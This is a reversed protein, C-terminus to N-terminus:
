LADGGGVGVVGCYWRMCCSLCSRSMLRFLNLFCLLGAGGLGGVCGLAALWGLGVSVGRGWVGNLTDIDGMLVCEVCKISVGRVGLEALLFLEVIFSKNFSVCSFTVGVSM